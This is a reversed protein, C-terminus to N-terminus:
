FRDDWEEHRDDHEDRRLRAIASRGQQLLVVDLMLYLAMFLAVGIAWCLAFLDEVKKAAPNAGNPNNADSWLGFGCVAFMALLGVVPVTIGLLRGLTLASGAHLVKGISAISFAHLTEGAVAFALWGLMTLGVLAAASDNPAGGNQMAQAIGAVIAVGCGGVLLLVSSIAAIYGVVRPARVPTNASMFRGVAQMGFGVTAALMGFLAVAVQADSPEKDFDGPDDAMAFTGIMFLALGLFLIGAAIQQILFGSSVRRWAPLHDRPSLRRPPERRRHDDDEDDIADLRDLEEDPITVVAGCEPCLGRRGAQHDAVRYTRHCAPCTVSVAM